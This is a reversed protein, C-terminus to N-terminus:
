GNKKALSEFVDAISRKRPGPFIEISEGARLSGPNRVSFYWGCLGQSFMKKGALRDGMIANFKFCPERPATVELEVDSIKWVDGVFVQDELIGETTLNEGLAGHQDLRSLRIDPAEIANRWYDYHEVPYCYIAKAQGGHVSLDAHEDGQLGEFGCRIEVQNDNSSVSSKTIASLVTKEEEQSSSSLFINSCKGTSITLIKVAM